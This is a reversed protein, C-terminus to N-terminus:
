HMKINVNSEPLFNKSASPESSSHENWLANRVFKKAVTQDLRPAKARDAIEKVLSM